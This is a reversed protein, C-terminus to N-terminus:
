VRGVMSPKNGDKLGKIKNQSASFFLDDDINESKGMVSDIQSSTMQSLPSLKIEMGDHKFYDVKHKRLVKIIGDLEKPKITM